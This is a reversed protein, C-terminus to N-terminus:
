GTSVLSQVCTTVCALRGDSTVSTVDRAAAASRASTPSSWVGACVGGGGLSAVSVAGYRTCSDITAPTICNRDACAGLASAEATVVVVLLLREVPTLTLAPTLMPTHCALVVALKSM